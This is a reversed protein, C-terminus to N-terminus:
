SGKNARGTHRDVDRRMVLANDTTVIDVTVTDADKEKVAGMKLRPNNTIILAAETLKKVQDVSLNLDRGSDSEPALKALSFMLNGHRGGHGMRGHHKGDRKGDVKEDGAGANEACRKEFFAPRGTKTSIERTTVLSGSTTLIEVSAIGPEKTTAKGVKLTSDGSQAMRGAVIDRVQDLSLKKDNKSMGDCRDGWGRHMREHKAQGGDAPEAARVLGATAVGAGLVSAMVIASVHFTSAAKTLAQKM